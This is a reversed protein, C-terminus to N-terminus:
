FSEKVRKTEGEEGEENIHLVYEQKFDANLAFDTSSHIDYSWDDGDLM